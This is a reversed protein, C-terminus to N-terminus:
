KPAIKLLYLGYITFLVNPIWVSIAPHLGGKLAFTTTFQMLLIYAFSSGIGIGLQAGVGGRVKRSCLSVAILVLIFTSFSMAFRKYYEIEYAELGSAGRKREKDLYAKMETNTLSAISNDKREFDSPSMNLVTDKSGAREVTEYLGNIRKISYSQIKWNKQTSDWRIQDAILKYKLEKGSFKELTFRYGIGEQNNYSEMYAYSSDDLQIHINREKYIYKNNIYTNEFEVRVKNANPIIYSNLFYTLVSLFLATVFYPYLLRRFSVGGSLIAVIETNNAMKSTFFIAAIFILLPSLLGIYYPIFNFYYNLIIEDVPANTKLFDDIKESFDFVVAIAIFIAMTFVFTGLFKKIIYWDILQLKLRQWM